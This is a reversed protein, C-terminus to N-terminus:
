PGQSRKKGREVRKIEERNQERRDVVNRVFVPKKQDVKYDNM